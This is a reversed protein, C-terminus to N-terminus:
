DDEFGDDDKLGEDAETTESDSDGRLSDQLLEIFLHSLVSVDSISLKSRWKNGNSDYLALSTDEYASRFEKFLQPGGISVPRDADPKPIFPANEVAAPVLVDQVIRKLVDMLTSRDARKSRRTMHKPRFNGCRDFDFVHLQGYGDMLFKIGRGNRGMHWHLAAYFAGMQRSVERFGAIPDRGVVSFISSIVAPCGPFDFLSTSEDFPQGVTHDAGLLPQVLCIRNRPSSLISLQMSPSVKFYRHVLEQRFKEGHGPPLITRFGSPPVDDAHINPGITNPSAALSMGFLSIGRSFLINGSDLFNTAPPINPLRTKFPSQKLREKAAQALPWIKTVINFEKSIYKEVGAKVAYNFAHHFVEIYESRGDFISMAIPPIELAQQPHHSTSAHASIEQAICNGLWEYFSSIQEQRYFRQTRLVKHIAIHKKSPFSAKPLLALAERLKFPGKKLIGKPSALERHRPRSEMNWYLHADNWAGSARTAGPRISEVVHRDQQKHLNRLGEELGKIFIKPLGQADSLKFTFVHRGEEDRASSATALALSSVELYTEKWEAWDESGPKPILAAHNELVSPVMVKEVEEQSMERLQKCKGFGVCYMDIDKEKGQGLAGGLLFEIGAGDYRVVWHLYALFLAVRCALYRVACDSFVKRLFDRDGPFHTLPVSDDYLHTGDHSVGFLPRLLISGGDLVQNQRVRNATELGGSYGKKIIMGVFSIPLNPIRKMKLASLSVREGEAQENSGALTAHDKNFCIMDAHSPPLYEYSPIVPFELKFPKIGKGMSNYIVDFPKRLLAPSQALMVKVHATFRSNARASIFKTITWENRIATLLGIKFIYTREERRAIVYIGGAVSHHAVRQFGGKDHGKKHDPELHLGPSNEPSQIATSPQAPGQVGGPAQRLNSSDWGPQSPEQSPEPIPGTQIQEPEFIDSIEMEALVHAM